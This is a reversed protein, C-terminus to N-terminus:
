LDYLDKKKRVDELFGEFQSLSYSSLNNEKTVMGKQAALVGYKVNEFELISHADPDISILVNKELAYHLWQWRMDLRKPHANLEIVVHNAACADIIKKYDVSYGKRSLLLRGTMHGLIITYRNEIAKMLRMMAKSEDMKLNSHVSAIVLDFTSLINDTYDLIGDSLIDSEISKFIKFPAYKKNLSDIEQHQAKIRDETLGGAYFASKSHDSIVLYELGNNIAAIALEEITNGGDSWKSHSHIIGKIDSPEILKPIQDKAATDLIEATERLCPEIYQLKVSSFIEKEDPANLIANPFRSRFANIFVDSGTTLFLKDGINDEEAIFLKIKIIGDYKYLIYDNTDEQLVFQTQAGLGRIISEKDSAVVYELTDITEEQRRFNGTIFVGKGHLAEKIRTQMQASLFEVQAYLYNGQRDLYFNIAEIVNTQTAKGFGKYLLLRNEHCAYLLEGVNEIEMEKWIVAVKKPGLGKINMIEIIGPPTKQLLDELVKITGTGLLEIIAKGVSEGVGQISFIETESMQEIVQDFRDVKFAANAYSKAKFSNEGHLEM